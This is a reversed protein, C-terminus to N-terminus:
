NSRVSACCLLVILNRDSCCFPDYKREFGLVACRHVTGLNMISELAVHTEKDMASSGVTMERIRGPAAESSGTGRAVEDPDLACGAHKNSNRILALLDGPHDGSCGQYTFGGCYSSSTMPYRLLSNLRPSSRIVKEM